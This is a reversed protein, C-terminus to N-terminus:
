QPEPTPAESRGLPRPAVLRGMGRQFGALRGGRRGPGRDRLTAHLGQALKRFPAVETEDIGGVHQAAVEAADDGEQTLAAANLAPDAGYPGAHHGAADFVVVPRRERNQHRRQRLLCEAGERRDARRRVGAPQRRVLRVVAFPYIPLADHLSVIHCYTYILITATVNVFSSSWGSSLLVACTCVFFCMSIM